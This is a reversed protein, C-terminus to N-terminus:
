NSVGQHYYGPKYVMLQEKTIDHNTSWGEIQMYTTFCEIPMFSSKLAEMNIEHRSDEWSAKVCKTIWKNERIVILKSLQLNLLLHLLKDCLGKQFDTIRFHFSIYKPSVAVGELTDLFNFDHATGVNTFEQKKPYRSM